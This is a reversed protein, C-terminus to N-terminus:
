KNLAYYKEKKEVLRDGEYKLSAETFGPRSIWEDFYRDGEWMPLHRLQDHDIWSLTGESCDEKLSGEYDSAIYLFMGEDQGHLLGPFLIYAKLTVEKLTLGTEEYFERRVCEEPMEGAEIKGGIGIWKGENIDNEKKNRYLMLTKGAVTLYCITTLVTM